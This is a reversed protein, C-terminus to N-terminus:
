AGIRQLDMALEGNLKRDLFFDRFDCFTDCSEELDYERSILTGIWAQVVRSASGSTHHTALESAFNLLDYVRCNVPLARQRKASLADVNALGYIQSVDGTMRHFAALVPVRADVRSVGGTETSEIPQTSGGASDVARILETSNQSQWRFEGHPLIRTVIRYLSQAEAVSAWSKAASEFRQRLAAYGEDSSFGDLARVISYVANDEGRGLALTSRFTPSYGVMGNSCIERLLSLYISPLGYGDIPASVVFRNCMKDGGIDFVNGGIRPVHTSEVVGDGYRVNEGEYSDLTDMLDDHRLIARTPSSAALLRSEGTHGDREICLRV